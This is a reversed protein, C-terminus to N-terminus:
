ASSGWQWCNSQCKGYGFPDLVENQCDQLCVQRENNNGDSDKCTETTTDSCDKGYSSQWHCYGSLDKWHALSSSDLWCHTGDSLKWHFVNDWDTWCSRGWKDKWCSITCGKTQQCNAPPTVVVTYTGAALGYFCYNGNADTTTTAVVTGSSDKLTM